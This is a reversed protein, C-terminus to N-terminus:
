SDGRQHILIKNVIISEPSGNKLHMPLKHLNSFPTFYIKEIIEVEKEKFNQNKSRKESENLWYHTLILGLFAEM